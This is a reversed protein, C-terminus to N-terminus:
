RIPVVRKSPEIGYKPAGTRIADRMHSDSLHAYHAVTTRTGSHGLVAAIVTMPVGGMAALSAWTHRLIHFSVGVLKARACAERMRRQQQDAPWPTGNARQFMVGDRGACHQRFFAAAEDSLIINRPRGTKSRQIALTGTDPHFDAVQLRSLEGYRAGTLLAAVVLPRFDADCANILRQSEAISLFRVRAAGVNAFTGFRRGWADRNSIHGEDYAFNLAAKLYTAVRNASVRRRRTDEDTKPEPRYNPKTGRPRMQAPTSAMTALWRRLRESTLEEVVTAGLVPLIHVRTRSILDRVPQGAARKAETYAEMAQRVTLRSIHRPTNAAARAATLAQEFSLILEGDAREADDARGLTMSTYKGDQYQRLIWRGERDEPWRQYGLHVRRPILAMWHPQRGRKLRARRARSDLQAHRVTGSM